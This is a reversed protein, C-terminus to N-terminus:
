QQETGKQLNVRHVWLSLSINAIEVWNFFFFEFATPTM